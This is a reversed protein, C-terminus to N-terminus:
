MGFRLLDTVLLAFYNVVPHKNLCSRPELRLNEEESPALLLLTHLWVPLSM